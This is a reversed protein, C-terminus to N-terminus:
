YSITVIKLYILIVIAGLLSLSSSLASSDLSFLNTLADDYSSTVFFNDLAVDYSSIVFSMDKKLSM